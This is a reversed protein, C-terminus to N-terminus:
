SYQQRFWQVLYQMAKTIEVDSKNSSIINVHICWKNYTQYDNTAKIKEIWRNWM